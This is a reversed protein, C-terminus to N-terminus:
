SLPGNRSKTSQEQETAFPRAYGPNRHKATILHLLQGDVLLNDCSPPANERVGDNVLTKLTREADTGESPRHRPFVEPWSGPIPHEVKAATRSIQKLEQRIRMIDPDVQRAGIDAVGFACKSAM